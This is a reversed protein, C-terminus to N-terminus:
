GCWRGGAPRHCSRPTGNRGAGLDATFLVALALPAPPASRPALPAQRRLPRSFPSRASSSFLLAWRLRLCIRLRWGTSTPRISTRAFAGPPRDPRFSQFGQSCLRNSALSGQGSRAWKTRRPAPRPPALPAGVQLRSLGFRTGSGFSTYSAHGCLWDPFRREASRRCTAPKPRVTFVVGGTGAWRGRLAPKSVPAGRLAPM